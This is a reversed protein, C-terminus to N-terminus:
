AAGGSKKGIGLFNDWRGALSSGLGERINDLARVMFYIAVFFILMRGVVLEMTMPKAAEIIGLLIFYFATLAILLELGGYWLRSRHRMRYLSFAIPLLSLAWAALAAHRWGAFYLLEGVGVALMMIAFTVLPFRVQVWLVVMNTRLTM